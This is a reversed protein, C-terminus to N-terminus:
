LGYVQAMLYLVKRSSWSIGTSDISFQNLVEVYSQPLAVHKESTIAFVLGSKGVIYYMCQDPVM